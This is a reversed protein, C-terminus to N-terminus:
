RRSWFDRGEETDTKIEIEYFISYIVSDTRHLISLPPIRNISDLTVKMQMTQIFIAIHCPNLARNCNCNFLLLIISYIHHTNKITQSFKCQPSILSM